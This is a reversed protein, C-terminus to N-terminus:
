FDQKSIYSFLVFYMSDENENSINLLKPHVEQVFFDITLKDDPKWKYILQEKYM